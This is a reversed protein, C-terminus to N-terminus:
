EGIPRLEEYTDIVNTYVVPGTRPNRVWGEYKDTRYAMLEPDYSLMIYASDNYFIRQMELILERREDRDMTRQQLLHLEDYVPNSYFCDSWSMIEDTTVVKLISSPDVDVYWGWIFMDFDGDYIRDTLTGEDIVSVTIEIGVEALMDKIMSAMKQNDPSENRILLTFALPEGDPSVRIGDAGLTYGAAELTEVAIQPNYARFDDGLDLHWFDFLPPVLTSGVEGYGMLAVDIMEQRDLAYEIAIRVERDRLIPNGMSEEDEWVNFSLETFSPSDADLTVINPDNTEQLAKFQAGPVDAIVDLEGQKLAEVMMDTNAYIIYIVEDIAPRGKFYNDNAVLRTYEGKRHEVVQFPGTGVPNDNTFEGEADAPDIESWIHMPLIPVLLQPMWAIPEDTKVTLTHEDVVEIEEMSAVYDYFYGLENDRIYEFTFKVDEATFPEGDHWTVEEELYFTWFTGSEDVDWSKALKPTVNLDEDWSMLFNYNVYMVEYAQVSWIVMPNLSEIERMYGIRLINREDQSEEGGCGTVLLSVALILIVLLLAVKNLRRM